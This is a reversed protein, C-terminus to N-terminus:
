VLLLLSGVLFLFFLLYDYVGNGKLVSNAKPKLPYLPKIGRPTFSDLLLHSSYGILAAAGYNAGFLAYLIIYFVFALLLSHILGRHGLFFNILWSLPKVKRGIKSKHFDIDPFIAFFAVVLIFLFGKEISFSRLFFLGLFIGFMLHTKFMM